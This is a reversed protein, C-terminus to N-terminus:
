GWVEGQAVRSEPNEAMGEFAEEPLWEFDECPLFQCMAWGYLNNADFDLIYTIPKTPDYGDVFPNNGIGIRLMVGSQGGSVNSNFFCVMDMEGEKFLWPKIGREEMKKIFCALTFSPLGFFQFM